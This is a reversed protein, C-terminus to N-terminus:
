SDSVQSNDKHKGEGIVWMSNKGHETSKIEEFGGSGELEQAVVGVRAM